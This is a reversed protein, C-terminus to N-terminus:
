NNMSKNKVAPSLRQGDFGDTCTNEDTLAASVWTKIDVIQFKLNSGRLHGMADLSEKLEDIADKTNEICDKIVVAESRTLGKQKSLKLLLSLSAAM